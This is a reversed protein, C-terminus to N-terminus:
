IVITFFDFFLIHQYDHAMKNCKFKMKRETEQKFMKEGRWKSKTKKNFKM